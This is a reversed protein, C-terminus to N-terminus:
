LDYKVMLQTACLSVYDLLHSKLEAPLTDKLKETLLMVVIRGADYFEGRRKKIGTVGFTSSSVEVTERTIAPYLCMVDELGVLNARIGREGILVDNLVQMLETEFGEQWQSFLASLEARTYTKQQEFLTHVASIDAAPKKVVPPASKPTPKPEETRIYFREKVGGQKRATESPIFKIVTMNTGALKVRVADVLDFLTGEPDPDLPDNCLQAILSVITLDRGENGAAAMLIEFLEAEKGELIQDNPLQHTKVEIVEAVAPAEAQVITEERLDPAVEPVVEAPAATEAVGNNEATSKARGTRKQQINPESEGQRTDAVLAHTDIPSQIDNLQGPQIGLAPNADALRMRTTDLQLQIRGVVAQLNQLNSLLAVGSLGQAYLALTDPSMLQAILAEQKLLEDTLNALTPPPTSQERKSPM